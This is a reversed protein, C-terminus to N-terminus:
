SSPPRSSPGGSRTPAAMRHGRSSATSSTTSWIRSRRASRVRGLTPTSGPSIGAATASSRRFSDDTTVYGLDEDSPRRRRDHEANTAAAAAAAEERRGRRSPASARRSAAERLERELEEIRSDATRATPPGRREAASADSPPPPDRRLREPDGRVLARVAVLGRQPRSPPLHVMRRYAARVEDDTAGPSVGLVTSPDPDTMATFPVAEAAM